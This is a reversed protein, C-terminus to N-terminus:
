RKALDISPDVQSNGAKASKALLFGLAFTGVAVGSIVPWPNARVNRDISQAAERGNDVLNSLAESSFENLRDATESSTERVTDKMTNFTTSASAFSRAFTEGLISKLNGIDQNWMEKLDAAPKALAEDLVRLADDISGPRKNKANDKAASDDNTDSAM